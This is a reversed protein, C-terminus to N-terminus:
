KFSGSAFSVFTLWRYFGLIVDLKRLHVM